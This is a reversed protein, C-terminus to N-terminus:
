FYESKIEEFHRKADARSIVGLHSLKDLVMLLEDLMKTNNNGSTIEGEVIALKEKLKDISTDRTHVDVSKHIGSLYLLTDYLEKENLKLTKIDAMTPQIKKCLKMVINVFEDSVPCPKFGSINSKTSTLVSLINKYFLRDLRILVKGLTCFQPLKEIGMGYIHQGRTSGPEVEYKYDTTPEVTIGNHELFTEININTPEKGFLTTLEAKTLGLELLLKKISRNYEKSTTKTPGFFVNLFTGVNGDHSFMVFVKKKDQGLKLFLKDNTRKNEFILANNANNIVIDATIPAGPPLVAPVNVVAMQTPENGTILPANTNTMNTLFEVIEDTTLSKNNFGFLKLFKGKVLTFIKNIAFITDTDLNRQVSEIVIDSRILDKMNEKFKKINELEAEVETYYNNGPTEATDKLRDLYEEDTENPYQDMKFNGSNLLNMEDIFISSRQKNINDVRSKEAQNLSINVDNDDLAQNMAYIDAELAIIKKDEDEINQRLIDIKANEAAKKFKGLKTSNIYDRINKIDKRFKEKLGVSNNIDDIARNIDIKIPVPDYVVAPAVYAETVPITSAPHYKYQHKVGHADTIEIPKNLEDRYEKVMEESFPSKIKRPKVNDTRLSSNLIKDIQLSYNLDRLDLNGINEDSM